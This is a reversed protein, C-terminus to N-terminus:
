HTINFNDNHLLILTKIARNNQASTKCTAAREQSGMSAASQTIQRSPEALCPCFEVTSGGQVVSEGKM